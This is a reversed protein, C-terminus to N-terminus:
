PREPGAFFTKGYEALLQDLETLAAAVETTAAARDEGTEASRLAELGAHARRSLGGSLLLLEQTNAALANIGQALRGLENAERSPVTVSLDGSAIRDTAELIASLPGTVRKIFLLFVLALAALLIGLMLWVKLVVLGIVADVIEPGSPRAGAPGASALAGAVRAGRLFLTIEIALTLFVTGLFLIYFAMRRKLGSRGTKM